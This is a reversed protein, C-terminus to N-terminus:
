VGGVGGGRHPTYRCATSSTGRGVRRRFATVPRYASASPHVLWHVRPQDAVLVVLHCAASPIQSTLENSGRGYLKEVEDHNGQLRLKLNWGGTLEDTAILRLWAHRSPM